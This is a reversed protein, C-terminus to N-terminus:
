GLSKAVAPPMASFLGRTMAERLCWGDVLRSVSRLPAPPDVMDPAYVIAQPVWLCPINAAQLRLFFGTEQGFGAGLATQAGGLAALVPAPVLCCALSGLATECAEAGAKAAFGAPMGAKKRTVTAYPALELTTLTAGGAFRISLDEYLLTPCSVSLTRAHEVAHRMAGRWGPATGVVAPDLLLYHRAAMFNAAVDLAAGADVVDSAAVVHANLRMFGITRRLTAIHGAGWAAGAVIILCEDMQLPDHLFQSLVARPQSPPGVLAIVVAVAVTAAPSTLPARRSPPRRMRALCFPGLQQEIVALGSPKHLDTGELVRTRAAHADASSAAVPLFACTADRFAIDLYLPAGAPLNGEAFV